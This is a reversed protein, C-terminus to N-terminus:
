SIDHHEVRRSTLQIVQSLNVPVFGMRRSIEQATFQLNEALISCRSGIIDPNRGSISCAGITRSSADFIPAGICFTDSEHEQQDLAYGRTRTLELEKKLEEPSTITAPTFRPLGSHQIFAALEAQSLQALISKGNATCHMPVREGVATRAMLRNRSEIAYIYLVCDGERVTLYVSEHCYDALERLLPAARDRLEVNVRASQSLVILATGVAYDGNEVQEILGRSMLTQLLNHVTSRPLGLRKSITALSLRPETSSFLTLIDLVKLVSNIM